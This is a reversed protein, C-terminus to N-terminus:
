PPGSYSFSVASPTSPVLGLLAVAVAVTVTAAAGSVGNGYFRLRLDPIHSILHPFHLPQSIM